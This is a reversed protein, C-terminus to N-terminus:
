ECSTLGILQWLRTLRQVNALLTSAMIGNMNSVPKRAESSATQLNAFQIQASAFNDELISVITSCFFASPMGHKYSLAITSSFPEIQSIAFIEIIWVQWYKEVTTFIRKVRCANSLQDHEQRIFCSEFSRM